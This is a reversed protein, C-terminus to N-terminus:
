KAGVDGYTPIDMGGREYWSLGLSVVAHLLSRVALLSGVGLFSMMGLLLGGVVWLKCVVWRGHVVGLVWLPCGVGVLLVWRGSVVGLRCCGPVLIVGRGAVRWGRVVMGCLCCHGSVVFSSHACVCCGGVWAHRVGVALLSGVWLLYAGGVSVRGHGLRAWLADAGGVWGCGWGMRVGLQYAGVVWAHGRGMCAWSEYACLSSTCGGRGRVGSGGGDRWEM